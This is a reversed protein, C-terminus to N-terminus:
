KITVGGFMCFSDIYITPLKDDFKRKTKNTTAGFIPISKVKINVNEPVLIDIGGFVACTKILRDEKIIAKTLDFDISGFIANLDGGTFEQNNFEQKIEGFVAGYETLKIENKNLEKNKKQIKKDIRDKLILNVGIIILVIPIILKFIMDIDLYGRCAILLIIGIVLWFASWFKNERVILEIASPIIILLTWWGRFFINIDTIELTNLTLIIGIIIFVVGWLINGVKRM